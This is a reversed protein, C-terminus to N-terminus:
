KLVINLWKENERGVRVDTTIITDVIELGSNRIYDRISDENLYLFYRDKMIGEFNGYKFSCYMVGDEKLAKKCKLFVNSLEEKRIHLLSACSWIGEFENEYKMDQVYTCEINELGLIRVYDCFSKTPDIGYVDYGLSKFYLMDRGSGFGIDLIKGEKKKLHNLFFSYLNRMDCEKTTDIYEKTHEDYYKM